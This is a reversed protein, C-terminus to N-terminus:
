GSRRRRLRGVAPMFRQELDEARVGILEPLPDAHVQKWGALMSASWGPPATRGGLLTRIMRRFAPGQNRSLGNIQTPSPRQNGLAIACGIEVFNVGSWTSLILSGWFRPNCEIVVVGGDRQDTRMDFHAVGHFGTAAVLRQGIELLRPEEKFIRFGNGVDDQITWGVIRGHDAILSLDIDSGPVFEQLLWPQKGARPGALMTELERRTDYRAVRDGGESDTPKGMLPYRLDIADLSAGCGLVATRPAPLGLQTLLGHFRWKDHLTRLTDADAVPFVPTRILSQAEAMLLTAPMDGPIVVDIEHRACHANIRDVMAEKSSMEADAVHAYKECYRSFRARTVWRNTMLHARAGMSGLSRVICLGFVSNGCIVLARIM